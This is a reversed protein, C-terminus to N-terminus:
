KVKRRKLYDYVQQKTITHNRFKQSIVTMIADPKSDDDFVADIFSWIDYESVDRFQESYEETWWEPLPLSVSFLQNDFVLLTQEKDFRNSPLLWGGLPSLINAREVNEIALKEPNIYKFLKMNCSRLVNIDVKSALKVCAILKIHNQAFTGSVMSFLKNEPGQTDRAPLFSDLESCYVWVEQESTGSPIDKLSWYRDSPHVFPPIRVNGLTVVRPPTKGKLIMRGIAEEILFCVSADKGMREDAFTLWTVQPSYILYDLFLDIKQLDSLDFNEILKRGEDPFAFYVLDFVTNWDHFNHYKRIYRKIKLSHRDLWDRNSNSTITNM